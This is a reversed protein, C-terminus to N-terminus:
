PANLDAWPQIATALDAFDVIYHTGPVKKRAHAWLSGGAWVIISPGLLSRLEALDRRAERASRNRSFSVGVVDVKYDLAAAAVETAPTQAGLSICEIGEGALWAQTMLLGLAHPEGPLTTLLVRPRRPAAQDTRMAGHILHQLLDTYLHEDAISIRGAAWQEGVKITLPAAIETVFRQLGLRLLSATLRSRLMSAQRREILAALEDIPQSAHSDLAAASRHHDLLAALETDTLRLIAGPRLGRDMLRRITHLRALQEPPYTREGSGSRLPLPFGYRREWVRLTDKSLGTEREVASIDIAALSTSGEESDQVFNVQIRRVV